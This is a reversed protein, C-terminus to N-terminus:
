GKRLSVGYFYDKERKIKSKSFPAILIFYITLLIPSVVFLATLLYYKFMNVFFRRKEPTTGRKKILGAWIKFIKKGKMEIFWIDTPIKILGLSLIRKQLDTFDNKQLAENVISGFQNASEIDEQSVGPLPLLNWKKEKRGTLMWHFITLVSILNPERDMLPINGVLIGQANAIYAKISEQSNLWMNRGGIITVIPTGKMRKQFEFDQLLSTIPLSPSLFWPQYGIVILDYKESGYNIPELEVAEEVVCEPMTNYFVDSTWPFKFPKVPKIYVREIRSPEFPLLFNDIIEHLQGSQSYNIILVKEM